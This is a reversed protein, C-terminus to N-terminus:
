MRIDFILREEESDGKKRLKQKGKEALLCFAKLMRTKKENMEKRKYYYYKISECLNSLFICSAWTKCFYEARRRKKETDKLYEQAAKQFDYKLAKLAKIELTKRDQITKRYLTERM